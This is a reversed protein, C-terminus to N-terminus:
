VCVLGQRCWGMVEDLFLGGHFKGYTCCFCRSHVCYYYNLGVSGFFVGFLGGGQNRHMFVVCVRECYVWFLLEGVWADIRASM